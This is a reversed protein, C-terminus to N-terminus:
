LLSTGYGGGSEESVIATTLSFLIVLYVARGYTSVNAFVYM